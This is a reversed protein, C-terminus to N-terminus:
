GYEHKVEQERDKILHLEKETGHKSGTGRGRGEYRVEQEL